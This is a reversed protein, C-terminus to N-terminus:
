RFVLSEILSVKQIRGGRFIMDIRGRRMERTLLVEM